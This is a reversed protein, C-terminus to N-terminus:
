IGREMSVWQGVQAGELSDVKKGVARLETVDLFDEILFVRGGETDEGEGGM